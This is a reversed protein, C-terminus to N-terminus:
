VTDIAEITLALVHIREHSIAANAQALAAGMAYGKSLDM